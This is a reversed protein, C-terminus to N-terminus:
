EQYASPSFREASNFSRIFYFIAAAASIHKLTHGSVFGSTIFIQSDYKEFVKALLYIGLMTYVSSSKIKGTSRFLILLLVFVMSGFQVALYFKLSFWAYSWGIVTLASLPIIIFSFFLGTKKDVRDVVLVSSIASFALTMPLRDWFLTQTNPNWHFYSSGVSILVIAGSIIFGLQRYYSDQIKKFLLLGYIGAAFFALNSLVDMANPIGLFFRTDIFNFYDTPDQTPLHNWILILFLLLGSVSLLFSKKSSM